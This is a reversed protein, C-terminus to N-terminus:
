IEVFSVDFECRFRSNFGIDSVDKIWKAGEAVLLDDSVEFFNIKLYFKFSSLVM